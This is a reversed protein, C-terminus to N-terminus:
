LNVRMGIQIIRPYLYLLWDDERVLRREVIGRASEDNLDFDLDGIRHLPKDGGEMVIDEIYVRQNVAGLNFTKTNLVNWVDAYFTLSGEGVRISKSARANTRWIDAWRLTIKSAADYVDARRYYDISKGREYEQQVSIQWGGAILGWRTPTHIVVLARVIPQFDFGQSARLGHSESTRTDVSSNTVGVYSSRSERLDASLIATAFSGEPEELEIELGRFDRSGDTRERSVVGAHSEATGLSSSGMDNVNHFGSSLSTESGTYGRIRLAFLGQFSREAGAEYITTRSPETDPNGVRVVESGPNGFRQNRTVFGYRSTAGAARHLMGYNFFLRSNDGVPHSVGLRPSLRWHTMSPESPVQAIVSRSLHWSPDAALPGNIYTLIESNSLPFDGSIDAGGALYDSFGDIGYEVPHEEGPFYVPWNANYGDIRLGVDAVLGGYEVNDQVFLGLEWPEAEYELYMAGSADKRDAARADRHLRQRSGEVGLTFGHSPTAQAYAVVRGRLNRWHSYDSLYGGGSLYYAGALDLGSYSGPAFGWPSEDLFAVEGGPLEIVGFHADTHYPNTNSGRRSGPEVKIEGHLYEAGIEYYVRGSVRHRLRLGGGWLREEYPEASWLNYKNYGPAGGHGDIAQGMSHVAQLSGDDEWPRGPASGSFHGIPRSPVMDIGPGNETSSGDVYSRTLELRSYGEIAISPIVSSKITAELAHNNETQVLAPVPLNNRAHRYGISLHTKPLPHAPVALAVDLNLDGNKAYEWPRHRHDWTQKLAAVTWAGRHKDILSDGLSYVGGNVADRIATWGQFYPTAEPRDESPLVRYVPKDSDVQDTWVTPIGSTDFESVNFLRQGTSRGNNLYLLRDHQNEGYADPGFHKRQPLGYRIDGSILPMESPSRTMVQVTAGRGPESVPFAGVLIQVQEVLAENVVSYQHGDFPDAQIFGDVLFLVDSSSFGRVGLQSDGHLNVGPEYALAESITQSPRRQLFSLGIFRRASTVDPTVLPSSVEITEAEIEIGALPLRFDVTVTRGAYLRVSSRRIPRYGEKYALVSHTGSPVQLIFYSGDADTRSHLQRNEVQVSVGPMPKGDLDTVRGTLKGVPLAQSGTWSVLILMGLLAACRPRFCNKIASTARHSSM